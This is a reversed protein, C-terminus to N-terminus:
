LQYIRRATGGFMQATEPQSIREALYDRPLNLANAYGERSSVPPWDSGWMMRSPGFSELAMDLVPGIRGEFPNPNTMPLNRECFEGLGHFKM